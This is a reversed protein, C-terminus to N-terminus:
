KPVTRYGYRVITGMGHVWVQVMCRYWTGTYLGMGMCYWYTNGCGVGTGTGPKTKPGVKGVGSALLASSKFSALVLSRRQPQLQKIGM